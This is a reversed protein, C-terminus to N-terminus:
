AHVRSPEAKGLVAYVLGSVAPVVLVPYGGLDVSYRLTSHIDPTQGSGDHSDKQLCQKGYKHVDPVGRM